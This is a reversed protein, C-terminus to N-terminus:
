GPMIDWHINLWSSGVPKCWLTPFTSPFLDTRKKSNKTGEGLHWCLRALAPICIRLFKTKGTTGSGGGCSCRSSCPPLLPPRQHHLVLFCVRHQFRSTWGNQPCWPWYVFYTLCLKTNSQSFLSHASVTPLCKLLLNAGISNFWHCIEWHFYGRAAFTYNVVWYATCRMSSEVLQLCGVIGMSQQLWFCAPPASCLLTSGTVTFGLM